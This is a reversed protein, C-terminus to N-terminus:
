AAVTRRRSGRRRVEAALAPITTLLTQLHKRTESSRRPPNADSYFFHKGNHEIWERPDCASVIPDGTAPFSPQSIRVIPRYGRDFYVISGEALYAGYPYHQFNTPM